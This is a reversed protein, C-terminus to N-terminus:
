RIRQFGTKDLFLLFKLRVIIILPDFPEKHLTLNLGHWTLNFRIGLHPGDWRPEWVHEFKNM